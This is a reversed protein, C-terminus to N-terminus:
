KLGSQYKKQHLLRIGSYVPKVRTIAIPKMVQNTYKIETEM